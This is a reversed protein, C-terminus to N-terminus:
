MEGGKGSICRHIYAAINPRLLIEEMLAYFSHEDMEKIEPAISEIAAGRTILRHTRKVREVKNLYAIRNKLRQNKHQEQELEALLKSQEERLKEIKPNVSQM